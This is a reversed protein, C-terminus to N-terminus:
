EASPAQRKEREGDAWGGIWALALNPDDYPNAEADLGGQSAAKGQEYAIQETESRKAM